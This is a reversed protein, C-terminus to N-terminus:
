MCRRPPHTKAQTELAFKFLGLSHESACTKLTSDFLLGVSKRESDKRVRGEGLGGRGDEKVRWTWVHGLLHTEDIRSTALSDKSVPKGASKSERQQM